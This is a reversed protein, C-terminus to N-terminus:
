RKAKIQWTTVVLVETGSPTPTEEKVSCLYYNKNIRVGNVMNFITIKLRATYNLYDLINHNLKVIPAFHALIPMLIGLIETKSKSTHLFKAINADDFLM